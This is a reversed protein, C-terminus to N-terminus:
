QCASRELKVQEFTLGQSNQAQRGTLREWRGIATDVYIPDIEIGFCRRGTREAALITTGSGIFPDLVIDDRKTCDLIADSVLGIPKVTPHLALPPDTGKRPFGNAGPYTWVNSRSRGFKGLQINNLHPENGNRYLFILEHQSRYFSGMGANTKSWVCLNLLQLETARGASLMEWMHRWDMFAYILAGPTSHARMFGFGNTVFEIFQPETLEGAAMVFDRHTTKGKGSVHGNIPVNYPMDTIVAAARKNEMLIDYATSELANGCFLRHSELFWLDGPASVAPGTPADFEDAGDIEALDDLSQIRVDLEPLEFGIAEIDFDLVLESLEKLQQAVLDDNWKSRTALQNDALRYAKAQAETLHDLFIVPVQDLGLLKAAEYRAHGAIIKRYKDILLPANFGFADISKAIIRVQARDHKRPNDPAPVLENIALLSIQRNTAKSGDGALPLDSKATMACTELSSTKAIQRFTATQVSQHASALPLKAAESDAKDAFKPAILTLSVRASQSRIKPV